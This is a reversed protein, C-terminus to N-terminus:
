WNTSNKKKKLNTLNQDADGMSTAADRSNTWTTLDAIQLLTKTWTEM